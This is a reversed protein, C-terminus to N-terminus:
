GGWPLLSVRGSLIAEAANEMTVDALLLAGAIDDMAWGVNEPRGGDSWTQDANAPMAMFRDLGTTGDSFMIEDDLLNVLRCRNVIMDNQAAAILASSSEAAAMFWARMNALTEYNDAGKAAMFAGIMRAQTRTLGAGFEEPPKQLQEVVGAVGIKDAKDMTRLTQVQQTTLTDM